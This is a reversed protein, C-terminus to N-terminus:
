VHAVLGRGGAVAFFADVFVLALVASLKMLVNVVPGCADKLPDGVTDGIVAADKREKRTMGEHGSHMLVPELGRECLKKANDLAGGANVMSFALPAASLVTGVLLAM